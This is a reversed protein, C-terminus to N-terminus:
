EPDPANDPAESDTPGNEESKSLNDLMELTDRCWDLWLREYGLGFKLGALKGIETRNLARGTYRKALIKEYLAYRHRHQNRRAEVDKSLAPLNTTELGYFKILLNEKLSPPTTPEQFWDQLRARGAATISCITSTPKGPQPVEKSTVMGLQKLRALERYIQQHNAKWFFGISTDFTKALDYGSMPRETLCTLIAEALAM